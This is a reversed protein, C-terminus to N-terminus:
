QVRSELMWKKSMLCEKSPQIVCILVPLLRYRSLHLAFYNLRHMLNAYFVRESKYKFHMVSDGIETSGSESRAISNRKEKQHLGEM